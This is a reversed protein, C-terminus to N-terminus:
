SRIMLLGVLYIGHQCYKLGPGSICHGWEGSAAVPHPRCFATRFFKAINVSFCMPQPKTKIFNCAKLPFSLSSTVIELLVSSGTRSYTFIAKFCAHSNKDLLCFM